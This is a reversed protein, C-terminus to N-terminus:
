KKFHIQFGVNFSLVGSDALSLLNNSESFGYKVYNGSLELAVSSNLFVAYGLGLSFGNESNSNNNGSLRIYNYGGQAFISGRESPSFYGRVYPGLGLISLGNSNIYSGNIGLVFKNALFYGLNPNIILISEDEVSQYSASGGLMLTGKETQSFGYNVLIFFSFLFTITFNKM